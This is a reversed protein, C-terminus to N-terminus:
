EALFIAVAATIMVGMVVNFHAAHMLGGMLVGAVFTLPLNWM